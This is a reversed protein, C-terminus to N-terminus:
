HEEALSGQSPDRIRAARSDRLTFRCVIEYNRIRELGLRPRHTSTHNAM